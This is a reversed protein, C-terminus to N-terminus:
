PAVPVLKSCSCFAGRAAEAHVPHRLHTWEKWGVNMEKAFFGNEAL